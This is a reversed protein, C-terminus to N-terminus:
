EGPDDGRFAEDAALAAEDGQEGEGVGLQADADGAQGLAAAGAAGAGFHRALCHPGGSAVLCRIVEMEHRRRSLFLKEELADAVDDPANGEEAAAGRVVGDGSLPLHEGFAPGMGVPDRDREEVGARRHGIVEGAGVAFGGVHPDNGLDVAVAAQDLDVANKRLVIVAAIATLVLTTTLPPIHFANEFASSVSNSIVQSIGCWCILGSVAFLAAVVSRKLKKGRRREALVHLYYAPGGRWGGYLPDPQRYKQALTSEIFSTSAGLIATVWMWFVAGAGGASVAAVVGVLNGMGVRTATSIVLTQFSSLGDRGQKKECVAAIMDRFLRVPLLRTRCTFWIGATFLLVVMFSIGIGGGLPITFLDGWLLRYVSEILNVLM